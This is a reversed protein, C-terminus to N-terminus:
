LTFRDQLCIFTSLYGLVFKKKWGSSMWLLAPLLFQFELMTKFTQIHRIREDAYLRLWPLWLFIVLYAAFWDFLVCNFDYIESCWFLFVYLFFNHVPCIPWLLFFFHLVKNRYCSTGSKLQDPENDKLAHSNSFRALFSAEEAIAFPHYNWENDIRMKNDSSSLRM